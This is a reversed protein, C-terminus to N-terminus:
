AEEEPQWVLSALRQHLALDPIAAMRLTTTM